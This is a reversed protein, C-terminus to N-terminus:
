NASSPRGPAHRDSAGRSSLFRIPRILARYFPRVVRGSILGHREEAWVRGRPHSRLLPGETIAPATTLVEVRSLHKINFYGYQSPSVLRVPAGHDSGLPRGDLNQAILVDEALIDEITATAAFGDLGRCTVHTISTGPALVPEILARYFTGFSVGEWRLDTASWGAVCHFDATIEQRPLSALSTLPLDFEETM